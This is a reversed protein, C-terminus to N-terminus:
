PTNGEQDTEAPVPAPDDLLARAAVTDGLMGSNNFQGPPSPVVPVDDFILDLDMVRDIGPTDIALDPDVRMVLTAHGQDLMIQAARLLRANQTDKGPRLYMMVSTGSLVGPSRESVVQDIEIEEGADSRLFVRYAVSMPCQHKQFAFMAIMESATKSLGEPLPQTVAIDPITFYRSAAASGGIPQAREVIESDIPLVEITQEFRGSWEYFPEEGETHAISITYEVIVPLTEGAQPPQSGKTIKINPSMGMSMMGLNSQVRPDLRIEHFSGDPDAEREHGEVGARTIRLMRLLGLSGGTIANGRNSVFSITMPLRATGALVRSRLEVEVRDLKSIYRGLQEDSLQGGTAGLYLVEGWRPNWVRSEDGQLTLAYGIAVEWAGDSLADKKSSRSILEDLAPDSGWLAANLVIREPMHAYVVAARGSISIGAVIASVLMLLAAISLALRSRRRLVTRRGKAGSLARGCEPCRAGPDDLGIGALDFRCRRCFQGRQTVRGRLGLTFLMLSFCLIISALLLLSTM